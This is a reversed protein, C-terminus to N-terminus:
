IMKIHNNKPNLATPSIEYNVPIKLEATLKQCTQLFYFYIKVLVHKGALRKVLGSLSNKRLRKSLILILKKEKGRTWPFM